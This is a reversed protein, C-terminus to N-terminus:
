YGLRQQTFCSSPAFKSMRPVCGGSLDNERKRPIYEGRSNYKRKFTFAAATVPNWGPPLYKLTCLYKRQGGARYRGWGQSRGQISSAQAHSDVLSYEIKYKNERQLWRVPGLYILNRFKQKSASSDQNSGVAIFALASWVPVIILM